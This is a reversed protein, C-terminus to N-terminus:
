GRLLPCVRLLHRALPFRLHEVPDRGAFLWGRPLLLSRRRGERWWARLLELLQPSLMSHRDKRGKGRAERDGTVIAARPHRVPQEAVM